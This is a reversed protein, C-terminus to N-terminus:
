GAQGADGAHPRAPVRRAQQGGDDLSRSPCLHWTSSGHWQRGHVACAVVWAGGRRGESTCTCLPEGGEGTWTDWLGALWLVPAKGGEVSAGEPYIYYPQRVRKSGLEAESRWEYFGNSLVICRHTSLLRGFVPKADVTESRANFM